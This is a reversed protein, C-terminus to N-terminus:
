FNASPLSLFDKRIIWNNELIGVHLLVTWDAFPLCGSEPSVFCGSFLLIKSDKNEADVRRGVRM